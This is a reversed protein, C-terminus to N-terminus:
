SQGKINVDVDEAISIPALSVYYRAGNFLIPGNDAPILEIDDLLQVDILVTANDKSVVDIDIEPDDLAYDDRPWNSDTLFAAILALM